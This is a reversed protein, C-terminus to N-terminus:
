EEVTFSWVDSWASWAGWADVARVRWYYTRGETLWGQPLPWEPNASSTLRDLNPSVAHLVDARPSVQVHYDAIADGDPDVAPQWALKEPSPGETKNGDTPVVPAAPALPPRTASSERWGHTVRVQRPGKSEDRYVVRNPGVALSALSTVAMQVDTELYVGTACADGPSGHTQLELKVYYEYIAPNPQPDLVDDIAVYPEHEGPAAASWVEIWDTDRVAVYIRCADRDSTRSFRGGVVGGVIPYPSKVKYIVRAPSGPAEPHIRAPGGNAPALVVNHSSVIGRWFTSPALPPRYILKGNALGYPLNGRNRPNEGCRFKGQHDWRWIFKEGPRLTMSMTSTWQEVPMAHPPYYKEYDPAHTKMGPSACGGDIVRAALAPNEHLTRYSAITQNDAELYFSRREPDFLHWAGDYLVEGVCHTAYQDLSCMWVARAALGAQRCLVVFNAASLSCGSCYYCNAAKVPDARERFENRSPHSEPDPYPPGVRRNNEHCQVDHSATFAWIAMAKEADTMGPKVVGALISDVSYWDRRGNVVIRPGVVDSQGVNELVLYENPEFKSQLRKCASYTDLYQATNFGDLTGGLTVEYTHTAATIEEVHERPAQELVYPAPSAALCLGVAAALPFSSM